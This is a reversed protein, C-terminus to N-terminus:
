FRQRQPGARSKPFASYALIGGAFLVPVWLAWRDSEAALSLSLAELFRSVFTPARAGDSGADRWGSEDQGPM